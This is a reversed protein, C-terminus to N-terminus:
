RLRRQPENADGARTIEVVLYPNLATRGFLGGAIAFFATMPIAMLRGYWHRGVQKFAFRRHPSLARVAAAPAVRHVLRRIERFTPLFGEDRRHFRASGGVTSHWFDIPFAGNPCDIFVKGGPRVVRLLERVYIERMADREPLPRVEYREGGREAVGIHEIVGSSIVADFVGSDFPLELASAVALHDRHERELWQWKRLASLDIGWADHGLASLVDVSVGNGCGADLVGWSQMLKPAYFKEIRWRAGAVEAVLGRKHEEALQDESEFEDYYNGRSFDAIGSNCPYAAGCGACHLTEGERRLGGRCVPCRLEITM